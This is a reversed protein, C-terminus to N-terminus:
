EKDTFIILIISSSIHVMSKVYWGRDLYEQIGKETEKNYYGPIYFTVAKEKSYACMGILMLLVTLLKKM